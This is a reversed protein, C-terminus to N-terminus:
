PTLLQLVVRDNRKRAREGDGTDLPQSGGYGRATLMAAPVGHLILADRVATARDASLSEALTGSGPTHSQIEIRGLEPQESLFAALEQISARTEVSLEASGEAFAIPRALTLVNGDRKIGSKEPIRTLVFRKEIEELPQVEIRTVSRLYGPAVISLNAVGPPINLFGFAGVDDVRLELGRGLVDTIRAVASGVPEGSAADTVNGYLNSVKPLPELSCTVAHAVSSGEAPAAAPGSAVDPVAPDGAGLGVPTLGVAAVPASVDVSCNGEKYGEANVRLTYRGPELAASQFHGDTKSILGTLDRGEFRILADGIPTETEQEVVRGAILLAPEVAATVPAAVTEVRVRPRTDAAFGIGLWLTWPVEPAVEVLFDSAGSTALDLAGTLTLGNIWWPVAEWPMVRVGASLRSPTTSLQARDALCAEGTPAEDRNCLYGQRNAPIDV